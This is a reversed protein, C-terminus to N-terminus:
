RLKKELKYVLEDADTYLLNKKISRKHIFGDPALYFEVVRFRGHMQKRIEYRLVENPNHTVKQM